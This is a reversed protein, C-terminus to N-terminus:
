LKMIAFLAVYPPLTYSHTHALNGTIAHTHGTGGGTAQIVPTGVGSTFGAPINAQYAPGGSSSIMPVSYPSNGPGGWGPAGSMYFSHSHSPLQATTLTTSAITIQASPDTAGTVVASSGGTTALVGGGGLVFQDRLDPTGNTGDCLHWGAPIANSAGNWFVVMNTHAFDVGSPLNAAINAQTLLINTTTTGIYPASVGDIPVLIQNGTAGPAGRVPTGAIEGGRYSGSTGANIVGNFTLTGSLVDGGNKQLLAALIGATVRLEVRSGSAFALAVTNEQARTVVLTDGTIGTCYCIEINGSTDEITVAFIQGAALLPFKAGTGTAVTLELDTSLMATALITSANNTFQFISM